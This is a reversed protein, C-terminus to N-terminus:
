LAPHGSVSPPVAVSYWHGHAAAEGGKSVGSLEFGLDRRQLRGEIVLPEIGEFPDAPADAVPETARHQVPRERPEPIGLMEREVM